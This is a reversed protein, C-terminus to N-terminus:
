LIVCSNGGGKIKSKSSVIYYFCVCRFRGTPDVQVNKDM